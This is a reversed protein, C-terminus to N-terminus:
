CVAAKRRSVKLKRGAFAEGVIRRYIEEGRSAKALIRSAFGPNDGVHRTVLAHARPWVNKVTALAFPTAVEGDKLAQKMMRKTM